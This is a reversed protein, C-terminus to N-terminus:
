IKYNKENIYGYVGFKNKSVVPELFGQLVKSKCPM